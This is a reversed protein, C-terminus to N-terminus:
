QHTWDRELKQIKDYLRQNEPTPIGHERAKKLLYGTIFDIETKRHYFVDQHMSSLNDATNRIVSQVSEFLTASSIAYEEAEMVLTIEDVINKLVPQYAPQALQGNKCGEIATLPNVACNIALKTWLALQIDPNWVVSPLAHNLVEQIFQCKEGKLNYGGVQTSGHGTHLVQNANPKYAGHTTTALLLPQQLQGALEDIAGMGNHIVLLMCEPHIHAILPELAGKVQWAKVTVLILDANEVSEAKRNEFQISPQEDLQISLHPALQNGWISVNHGAQQLKTAWLSGIAGPGLVVINM